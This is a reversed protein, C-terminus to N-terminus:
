QPVANHPQKVVKPSTLGASNAGGQKTMHDKFAQAYITRFRSDNDYDFLDNTSKRVASNSNAAQHKSASRHAM